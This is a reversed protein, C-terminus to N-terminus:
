PKTDIRRYLNVGAASFDIMEDQISGEAVEGNQQLAASSHVQLGAVERCLEHEIRFYDRIFLLSIELPM